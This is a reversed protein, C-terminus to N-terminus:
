MRLSSNNSKLTSLQEIHEQEVPMNKSKRNQITKYMDPLLNDFKVSM